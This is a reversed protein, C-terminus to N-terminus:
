QLVEDLKDKRRFELTKIDLPEAGALLRKIEDGRELSLLNMSKDYLVVGAKIFFPAFFSKTKASDTIYDVPTLFMIFFIFVSLLFGSALGLLPGGTKNLVTQVAEIKMVRQLLNSIIRLAAYIVGAILLFSILNGINLPIFLYKNIFGSVPIYFHISFVIVLCTGFIHFLEGFFGRQSGVYISRLVVIIALLDAWIIRSMWDM